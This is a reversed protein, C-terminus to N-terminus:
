ANGGAGSTRWPAGDPPPPLLDDLDAEDPLEPFDGPNVKAALGWRAWEEGGSAFTMYYALVRCRFLDELDIQGACYRDVARM